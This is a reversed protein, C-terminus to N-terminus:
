AALQGIIGYLSALGLLSAPLESISLKQQRSKAERKCALLFALASSDVNRIGSCDLVEVGSRLHPRIETLYRTVTDILIDGEVRCLNGQREIM